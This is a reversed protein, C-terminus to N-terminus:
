LSTWGFIGGAVAGALIALECIQLFYGALDGTIGGFRKYSFIRYYVFSLVGAAVAASGAVPNCAIMAVGTGMLYCIEVGITIKKHAGHTFNWLSGEGRANAFWVAALSSYARAQCFGLAVVAVVSFSDVQAYLGWQLLLYLVLHLAGFAGIRSDKMVEFLKDRDGMCAKADNVDCFGDMHIGGTVWIPLAVAVAGFLMPGIGLKRCLAYWGLLLGGLVVGILPFFCLAYRRNEEKWEVRPMPIKSYMLFASCLSKWVHM